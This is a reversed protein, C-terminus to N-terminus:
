IQSINPLVPEYIFPFAPTAIVKTQNLCKRISNLVNEDSREMPSITKHKPGELSTYCHDERSNKNTILSKENNEDEQMDDLSQDLPSLSSATLDDNERGKCIDEDSLQSKILSNKLVRNTQSDPKIHSKSHSNRWIKHGDNLRRNRASLTEATFNPEVNRIHELLHDRILTRARDEVAFSEYVLGCTEPMLVCRFRYIRRIEDCSLESFSEVLVKDSLKRIQEVSLVNKNSRKHPNADSHHSQHQEANLTKVAVEALMGLFRNSDSYNATM